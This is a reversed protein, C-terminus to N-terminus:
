DLSWIFWNEHPGPLLGHAVDDVCHSAILLTAPAQSGDPIAVPKIAAPQGGLRELNADNTLAIDDQVVDFDPFRQFPYAGSTIPFDLTLTLRGNGNADSRFGNTLEDSGPNPLTIAM